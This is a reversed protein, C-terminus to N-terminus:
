PMRAEIDVSLPNSLQSERGDRDVSSMWVRYRGPALLLTHGDAHVDVTESFDIPGDGIGVHLQLAVARDSPGEWSIRAPFLGPQSEVLTSKTANWCNLLARRDFPMRQVGFGQQLTSNQTTMECQDAYPAIWHLDVEGPGALTRWMAVRLPMFALLRDASLLPPFRESEGFYKSGLHQNLANVEPDTLARDYLRLEALKLYGPSDLEELRLGIREAPASYVASQSILMGDLWVEARSQTVRLMMLQWRGRPNSVDGQVASVCGISAGLRGSTTRTLEFNGSCASGFLGIGASVGRAAILAILTREEVGQPLSLSGDAVLMDSSTNLRVHPIDIDGPSSTPWGSSQLPEQTGSADHWRAVRGSQSEVGRGADLHWVLSSGVLVEDAVAQEAVLLVLATIAFVQTKKVFFASM